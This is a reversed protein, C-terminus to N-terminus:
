RVSKLFAILDSREQAKPVSIGMANGAVMADTDRLWRELTEESWTVGSNKIGSSYSFGPVSGARRGYVGRLRPGERDADLAHCGTCRRGFIARGREADGVTASASEGVAMQALGSLAARDAANLGATWHVLRYQLPPMDGKKVQQAIEQELTQQQDPSVDNWQSLNLHRRGEAVDREVLWSAPAVRSYVPWRTANSHCDACKSILTSRAADPMSAVRLLDERAEPLDRKPDGFPHLHALALSAIVMGFAISLKTAITM